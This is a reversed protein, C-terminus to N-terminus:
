ENKLRGVLAVEQIAASAQDEPVELTFRISKVNIGAFEAYVTSAYVVEYRENLIDYSLSTDDNRVLEEIYYIKEHGDEECIFAIDTIRDFMTDASNSNYFMIGRLETPEKLTIEFTSTVTAEANKVYNQEFPQSVTTYYSILGDALDDASSGDALSGRVLTASEIADSVDGYESEFGFGPQVTVTPGNVHMVDLDNGDIDKVTVWKVEDFQIHRGTYVDVMNHAHYAMILKTTGNVSLTFFSHHGPGAVNPNEGIDNNILM